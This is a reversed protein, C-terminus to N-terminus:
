EWDSGFAIKQNRRSCLVYRKTSKHVFSVRELSEIIIHDGNKLGYFKLTKTKTLIIIKDRSDESTDFTLRFPQTTTSATSQLEVMPAISPSIVSNGFSRSDFQNYNPDDNPLRYKASRREFLLRRIPVGIDNQLQDELERVTMEESVTVDLNFERFSINM